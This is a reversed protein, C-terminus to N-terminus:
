SARQEWRFLGIVVALVIGQVLLNPLVRQVEAGALIQTLMIFAGIGASAAAVGYIVQRLGKYPARAEAKLRAYKEPSIGQPPNDPPKPNAM